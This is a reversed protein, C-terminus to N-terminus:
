VVYANRVVMSVPKKRVMEKWTLITLIIRCNSFVSLIFYVYM